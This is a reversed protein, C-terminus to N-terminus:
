AFILKECKVKAVKGLLGNVFKGSDEASYKKAIEVAENIAVSDPIDEMYLIELVGVRLTALDVKNLRGIKWNDSCSEILRDAEPLHSLILAAMKRLYEEQPNEAGPKEDAASVADRAESDTERFFGDMKEFFLEISEPSYDNQAEMQFLLIMILERAEVRSM